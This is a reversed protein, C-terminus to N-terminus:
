AEEEAKDAAELAVELHAKPNRIRRIAVHVDLIRLGYYGDSLSDTRLQVIAQEPLRIDEDQLRAPVEYWARQTATHVLGWLARAGLGSRAAEAVILDILPESFEFGFRQERALAQQTQIPGDRADCLIGRLAEEDLGDMVVCKEFRGVLQRNLGYRVLDDPMVRQLLDASPKERDADIPAGLGMRRGGTLRKEVIEGLGEFAGAAVILMHDTRIPIRLRRPGDEGRSGVEVVVKSGSILQLLGDQAGSGTVDRYAGGSPAEAARRKDIEDIMLVGHEASPVHGDAAMLLGRVWDAASEGVYGESTLRTADAIYVPLRTVRGIARILTSKGCGTPGILLTPPLHWRGLSRWGGTHRRCRILHQYITVALTGVTPDQGICYHRLRAAIEPPTLDLSTAERLREEAMRTREDPEESM